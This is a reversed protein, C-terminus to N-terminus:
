VTGLDLHNNLLLSIVKKLFLECCDVRTTM